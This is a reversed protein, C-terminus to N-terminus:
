ADAGNIAVVEKSHSPFGSRLLYGGNDILVLQGDAIMAESTLESSLPSANM